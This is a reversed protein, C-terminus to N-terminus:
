IKEELVEIKSVYKNYDRILSDHLEIKENGIELEADGSDWLEKSYSDSAGEFYECAEYMAWNIEIAQDSAKIYYFILEKYKEKAIKDAEEFNSISDQNYSNASAYLDRASVCYEISDLFYGEDYYFSWLNYNSEANFNDFIGDNFEAVGKFYYKNFEEIGEIESELQSKSYNLILYSTLIISLILIVIFILNENIKNEIM